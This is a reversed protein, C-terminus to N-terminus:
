RGGRLDFDGLGQDNLVALLKGPHMSKCAQIKIGAQKASPEFMPLTDPHVVLTARGEAIARKMAPSFEDSM